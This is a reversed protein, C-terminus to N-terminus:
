PKLDQEAFAALRAEGDDVIRLAERVAGLPPEPGHPAFKLRDCRLLFDRLIGALAPGLRACSEAASTIEATTMEGTGLDFARSFYRRIIHSVRSLLAGTEIREILENLDRRAEAGPPIVPQPKPRTLRWILIGAASFLLTGAVWVTAAHREYFSPAIEPYAPRLILSDDPAANSGGPAVAPTYVTLAAWFLLTWALRSRM